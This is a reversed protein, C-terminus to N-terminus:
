VQILIYLCKFVSQIKHETTASRSKLALSHRDWQNFVKEALALLSISIVVPDSSKEGSMGIEIERKRERESM